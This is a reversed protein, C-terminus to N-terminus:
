RSFSAKSVYDIQFPLGLYTGRVSGSSNIQLGSAYSQGFGSLSNATIFIEPTQPTYAENYLSLDAFNVRGM